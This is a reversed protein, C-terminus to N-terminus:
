PESTSRSALFIPFEPPSLGIWRIPYGFVVQFPIIGLGVILIKLDLDIIKLDFFSSFLIHIGLRHTRLKARQSAKKPKWVELM